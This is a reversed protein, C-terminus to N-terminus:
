ASLLGCGLGSGRKLTDQLNWATSKQGQEFTMDPPQNYNGAADTTM